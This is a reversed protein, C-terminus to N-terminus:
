RPALLCRAHGLVTSSSSSSSTTTTTAVATIIIIIIIVHSAPLLWIANTGCGTKGDCDGFHTRVHFQVQCDASTPGEGVALWLM